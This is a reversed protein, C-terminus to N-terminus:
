DKYNFHGSNSIVLAAAFISQLCEEFINDFEKSTVVDTLAFGFHVQKKTPKKSIVAM